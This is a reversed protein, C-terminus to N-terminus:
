KLVSSGERSILREYTLRKGIAGDFLDNMMETLSDKSLRFGFDNAYRHTHKPSWWHFIGRYGRKVM